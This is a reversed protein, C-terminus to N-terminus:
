YQEFNEFRKMASSNAPVTRDRRNTFLCFIYFVGLIRLQNVINILMLTIAFCRAFQILINKSAGLGIHSISRKHLYM